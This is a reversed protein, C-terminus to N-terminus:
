LGFMKGSFKTSLISEINDPEVTGIGKSGLVDQEFTPGTREFIEVFWQLAQKERINRFADFVLDLALPWKYQLPRPAGCGHSQEFLTEAKKFSIDTM